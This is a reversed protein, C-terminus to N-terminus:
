RRALSISKVSRHMMEYTIMGCLFFHQLLVEVVEVSVFSLHNMRSLKFFFTYLSPFVNKCRLTYFATLIEWSSFFIRLSLVWTDRFLNLLPFFHSVFIIAIRDDLPCSYFFYKFYWSSWFNEWKNWNLKKYMSHLDILFPFLWDMLILSAKLLSM